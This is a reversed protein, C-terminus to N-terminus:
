ARRRGIASLEYRLSQWLPAGIRRTARRARVLVSLAPSREWRIWSMWWRRPQLRDDHPVHEGDGSVDGLVVNFYLPYPFDPHFDPYLRCPLRSSRAVLARTTAPTLLSMHFNNFVMELPLIKRYEPTNPERLLVARGGPELHEAIWRVLARPHRSHTLAEYAVILDYRERDAGFEEIPAAFSFPTLHQLGYLRQAMAADFGDIYAAEVHEIGRERMLAALGGGYTRLELVSRVGDIAGIRELFTLAKGPGHVYDQPNDVLLYHVASEPTPTVKAVAAPFHDYLSQLALPSPRVDQFVFGCTECLAIRQHLFFDDGIRAQLRASRQADRSNLNCVPLPEFRAGECSPCWELRELSATDATTM